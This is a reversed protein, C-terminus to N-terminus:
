GAAYYSIWKLWGHFYVNTEYERFDIRPRNVSFATTAKKLPLSSM